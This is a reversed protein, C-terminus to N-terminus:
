RFIDMFRDIISRGHPAGNDHTTSSSPEEDLLGRQQETLYYREGRGFFGGGVNMTMLGGPVPFDAAPYSDKVQKMVNAWVPLAVTAAYGGPMIERPKDYGIWVGAM